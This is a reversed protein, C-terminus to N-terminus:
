ASFQEKLTMWVKANSLRCSVENDNFVFRAAYLTERSRTKEEWFRAYSLETWPLEYQGRSPWVSRLRLADADFHLRVGGLAMGLSLNALLLPLLWLLTENLNPLRQFSIGNPTEQLWGLLLAVSWMFVLCAAVGLLWVGRTLRSPAGLTLPSTKLTSLTGLDLQKMFVM